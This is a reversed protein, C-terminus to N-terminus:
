LKFFNLWQIRSNLYKKVISFEVRDYFDLVTRCVINNHFDETNKAHQNEKQTVYFSSRGTALNGQEGVFGHFVRNIFAVHKMQQTKVSRSILDAEDMKVRM